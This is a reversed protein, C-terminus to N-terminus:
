AEEIEVAVRDGDKAPLAERLFEPAIFEAVDTHHTRDPVIWHSPRGGIRAIFCTAGGFTRGAAQFGDIRIGKWHRAADIRERDAAGVRVNLTGPYPTYGLRETFQVVYGPQMLYYRGEGLGSAVDGSFRLRGPGEFIRRYQEYEVRLLEMAPPTLSVRQRRAALQRTLLNRKALSVLHRDAAQQSIGVREGLERSTLVVPTHGGGLGALLRLIALEPGKAARAAEAM